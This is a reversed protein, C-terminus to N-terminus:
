NFKAQRHRLHALLFRVQIQVAPSLRDLDAMTAVRLTLDPEFFLPAMCRMCISLDGAKLGTLAGPGAAICFDAACIPCKGAVPKICCDAVAANAIAAAPNRTKIFESVARAEFRVSPSRAALDEDTASRLQLDDAFLNIAGCAVCVALDGGKPPRGGDETSAKSTPKHCNPCASLPADHTKVPRAGRARVM